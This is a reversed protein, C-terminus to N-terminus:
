FSDRELNRESACAEGMLEQTNMAEVRRGSRLASCIGHKSGVVM